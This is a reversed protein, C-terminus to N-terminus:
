DISPLLQPIIMWIISWIGSENKYLCIVAGKQFQVVPKSEDQCLLLASLKNLHPLHGVIMINEEIKALREVWGWPLSLPNLEKGLVVGKSPKLIEAFIGATQLARKKGSHYIARVRMDTNAAIFRAVRRVSTVGNDSLPREPDIEEPEAEGHQALFLYM